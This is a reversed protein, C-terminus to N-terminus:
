FLLYMEILLPSGISCDHPHVLIYTTCDLFEFSPKFPHYYVFVLRYNSIRDCETEFSKKCKHTHAGAHVHTPRRVTHSHICTYTYTCAVKENITWATYSACLTPINYVSGNQKTKKSSHM